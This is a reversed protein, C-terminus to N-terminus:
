CCGGTALYAFTKVMCNEGEGGSSRKDNNCLGWGM